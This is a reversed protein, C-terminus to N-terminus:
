TVGLRSGPSCPDYIAHGDQTSCEPNIRLGVKKGAKLVNDNFKELQSFSNFIIHDCILVIEDMEDDRYAPSFVHNEKGM